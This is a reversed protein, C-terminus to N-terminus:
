QIALPLCLMMAVIFLHTYSVPFGCRLFYYLFFDHLEYPGVLDETIQQINGNEDAPILLKMVVNDMVHHGQMYLYTTEPVLGLEKFETRLGNVQNINHPFKRKLEALKQNVRQQLSELSKEPHRLNLFIKWCFVM